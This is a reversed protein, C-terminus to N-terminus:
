EIKGVAWWVPGAGEWISGWTCRLCNRLKRYHTVRGLWAGSGRLCAGQQGRTAEVIFPREGSPVQIKQSELGLNIVGREPLLWLWEEASDQGSHWSEEPTRPCKAELPGLVEM